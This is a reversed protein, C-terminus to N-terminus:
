PSQRISRARRIRRVSVWIGGCWMLLFALAGALFGNGFAAGIAIGAAFGVAMGALVQLVFKLKNASKSVAISALVIMILALFFGPGGFSSTDM